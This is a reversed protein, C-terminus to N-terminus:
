VVGFFALICEVDSNDIGKPLLQLVKISQRLEETM